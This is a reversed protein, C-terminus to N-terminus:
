DYGGRVQVAAGVLRNRHSELCMDRSDCHAAGRAATERDLNAADAGEHAAGLREKDDVPGRDLGARASSQLADIRVIDSGDFHELVWRAKRQVTNARTVADDDDLGLMGM